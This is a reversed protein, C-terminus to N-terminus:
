GRRARLRRLAEDGSVVEGRDAQAASEEIAADLAAREDPTLDLEEVPELEVKTGDPLNTPADLVLRGNRVRAILKPM